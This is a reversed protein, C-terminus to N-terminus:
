GCVRTPSGTARAIVCVFSRAAGPAASAEMRLPNASGYLDSNAAYDISLVAGQVTAGVFAGASSVYSYVAPMVTNAGLAAGMPGATVSAGVGLKLNGSEAAAVAQDTNFILVINRVEGGLQFGFSAGALSIFSPASWRGDALRTVMVGGGLEGGFIFGAKLVGPIVAIGRANRLVYPPILAPMQNFVASANGLRNMEASSPLPKAAMPAGLLLSGILLSVVLYKM